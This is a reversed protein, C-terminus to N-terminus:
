SLTLCRRAMTLSEVAQDMTGVSGVALRDSVQLFNLCTGCVQIRSGRQVLGRLPELTPADDLALRIGENMLLIVEPSAPAVELSRLFKLMLLRGLEPSGSGIEASTIMLVFGDEITM